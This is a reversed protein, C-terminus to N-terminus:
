FSGASSPRIVRRFSKGNRKGTPNKLPSDVCLTFIDICLLFYAEGENEKTWKAYNGTDADWQKNKGYVFVRPRRIKRKLGRLSTYTDQKALWDRLQKRSIKKGDKRIQKMLKQIGSFSGAKGPDYYLSELYETDAM